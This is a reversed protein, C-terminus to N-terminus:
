SKLRKLLSYLKYAWPKLVLDYTGPYVLVKGGFGSKFRTVGPWRKADIGYFDYKKYGERRAMKIVEWQLLYPAMLNRDANSSAGHLYTVTDAFFSFLGAAIAKKAYVVVFLKIFDSQNLLNRYHEEGHLRFTDRQATTSMLQWFEKFDDVGGLRFKLDKKEALRINYRTKPHMLSLLEDETKALDLQITQSPQVDKTKHLKVETTQNHWFDFLISSPEFRLFVAKTKKAEHVIEELFDLAEGQDLRFLPGKPVYLYSFGFKAKQWVASMLGLCRDSQYHAYSLFSKGEQQWINQWKGSQLFVGQNESFDPNSLIIKDLEVSSKLRTLAM